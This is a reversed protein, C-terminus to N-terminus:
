IIKRQTRKKTLIYYKKRCEKCKPHLGDKRSKSKGFCETTKKVGCTGCKKIM